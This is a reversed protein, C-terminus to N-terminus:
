KESLLMYGCLQYLLRASVNGDFPNAGTEVLDVGVIEKKSKALLKLLYLLQNFSLGGPVPTGTNPCLSPCLGDVDISVYVRDPLSNIMKRCLADWTKGQFLLENLEQDTFVKIKGKSNHAFAWEDDCFDRIGVQVLRQVNDLSHLANYMVSAHSYTFGEYAERLDMHADIQLIGFNPLTDSMAKLYGLSSSHDGGILAVLKGDELHLKSQEYVTKVMEECAVNVDSQVQADAENLEGGVELKQIIAKAKSRMVKNQKMLTEDIPLMAIGRQWLDPFDSVYLDLQSSADFISQPGASCGEGFSVTVDWPVPLVIIESGEVGFPLGFIGANKQGVHNPNYTM